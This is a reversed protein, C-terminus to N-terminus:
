CVLDSEDHTIILSWMHDGKMGYIYISCKFLQVVKSYQSILPSLEASIHYNYNEQEYDNWIRKKLSCLHYNQLIKVNHKLVIVM